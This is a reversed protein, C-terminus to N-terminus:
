DGDGEVRDSRTNALGTQTRENLSDCWITVILAVLAPLWVSALSSLVAVATGAIATVTLRDRYALRHPSGPALWVLIGSVSALLFMGGAVAGLWWGGAVVWLSWAGAALLASQGIALAVAFWRIAPRAATDADSM